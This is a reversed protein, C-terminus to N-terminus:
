TNPQTPDVIPAPEVVPTPQAEPTVPTQEVVPAPQAEPTVPAPEVVPAPQAEPTVPTQEVVPTPEVEPTPNGFDLSPIIAEPIDEQKFNPNVVKETPTQPAAVTEVPVVPVPQPTVTPPTYQTQQGNAVANQYTQNLVANPNPISANQYTSPRTLIQDIEDVNSYDDDSYRVRLMPNILLTGLSIFIGCLFYKQLNAASEMEELYRTYDYDEYFNEAAKEIKNYYSYGLGCTILIIIVILKQYAGHFSNAEPIEFILIIIGVAIMVVSMFTSLGNPITFDKILIGLLQIIVYILLIITIGWALGQNKKNAVINANRSFFISSIFLISAISFINAGTETTIDIIEMTGGCLIGVLVIVLIILINYVTKMAKM